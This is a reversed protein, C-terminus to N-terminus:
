RLFDETISDSSWRVYKDRQVSKTVCVRACVITSQGITVGPGVFAEMAIWSGAELHIPDVYLQRKPAGDIIERKKTATCLTAGQSVVANMDLIVSDVNYVTVGGAICSNERMTLNRPDFIQVSPYIRASSAVTAGFLNM